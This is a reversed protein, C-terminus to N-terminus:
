LNVTLDKWNPSLGRLAPPLTIDKPHNAAGLTWSVLLKALIVGLDWLAGGPWTDEEPTQHITLRTRSGFRLYDFHFPKTADLILHNRPKNVSEKTSSSANSITSSSKKIPRTDRKKKGM